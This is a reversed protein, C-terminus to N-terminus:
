SPLHKALFDEADALVQLVEESYGYTRRTAENYWYHADGQAREKVVEWIHRIRQSVKEDKVPEWKALFGPSPHGAFVVLKTSLIGNETVRYGVFNTTDYVFVEQIGGYSWFGEKTPAKLCSIWVSHGDSGALGDDPRCYYGGCGFVWLKGHYTDELPGAIQHPTSQLSKSIRRGLSRLLATPNSVPGSKVIVSVLNEGVWYISSVSPIGLLTLEVRNLFRHNYDVILAETRDRPSRLHIRGDEFRVVYWGKPRVEFYQQAVELRLWPDTLRLNGFNTGWSIKGM